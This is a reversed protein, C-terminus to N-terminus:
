PTNKRAGLLDPHQHIMSQRWTELEKIYNESDNLTVAARTVKDALENMGTRELFLRVERLEAFVSLQKPQSYVSM